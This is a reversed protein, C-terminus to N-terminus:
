NEAKMGAFAEVGILKRIKSREEGIPLTEDVHSQLAALQRDLIGARWVGAEVFERAATLDDIEDIIRAVGFGGQRIAQNRALLELAALALAM